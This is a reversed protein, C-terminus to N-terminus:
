AVSPVSQRGGIFKMEPMGYFALVDAPDLGQAILAAVANAKATLENNDETRNAPIPDCFDFELGKGTTGFLPLFRTNLAQRFRVLRPLLKWRAFIFESAEASARNVDNIIGLMPKSMGFAEMVTDRSVERLQAFQMDRMSFGTQKWKGQEIIAVRHAKSVGRHNENWRERMEDFEEDSLRKEVEVIGGPEASNHFFNRNWEATYKISDLDTLLSQVPGMGRYMDMPNPMRLQIVENSDLPVKEGDPGLYIWGTLFKTPHTVPKLRDPRVPWMQAPINTGDYNSILWESEGVLDVHQQSAEIFEQQTMFPNPENWLDLAAHSTVQERDEERGTKSSRYLKWEVQSTTNSTMNVISFLTGVGGMAELQRTMTNRHPTAISLRGNGTFSVPTSTGVAAALNGLFSM